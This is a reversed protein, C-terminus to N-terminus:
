LLDDADDEIDKFGKDTAPSSGSFAEGDRVFQVTSVECRVGPYPKDQAWFSVSANVVCGPYLKGEAQTLRVRKRDMVLPAGDSQKRKTTLVWQGDYDARDLLAGDILCFEKKQGRVTKLFAEAKDGYTKVAAAQIAANVAKHNASNTEIVFTGSYKFVGAGQFQKPVFLEPFLGLRVNELMVTTRETMVETDMM